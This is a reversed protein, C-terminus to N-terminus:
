VKKLQNKRKGKMKTKKILKYEFSRGMIIDNKQEM